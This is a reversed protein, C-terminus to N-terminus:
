DGRLLQLVKDFCLIDDCCVEIIGEFPFVCRFNDLTIVKKCFYCKVEGDLIPKLLHLSKLFEDLDDEYVSRIEHRRRM